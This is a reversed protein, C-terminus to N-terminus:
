IISSLPVVESSESNIQTTNNILDNRENLATEKITFIKVTINNNSESTFVTAKTIFDWSNGNWYEENGLKDTRKILHM